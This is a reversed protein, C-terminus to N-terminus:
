DWGMFRFTFGAVRVTKDEVLLDIDCRVVKYKDMEYYRLPISKYGANYIQLCSWLRHEGAQGGFCQITGV